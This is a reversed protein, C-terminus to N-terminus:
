LSRVKQNTPSKWGESWYRNTPEFFPSGSLPINLNYRGPTSYLSLSISISSTNLFNYHVNPIYPFIHIYLFGECTRKSPM